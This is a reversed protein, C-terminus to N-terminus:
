NDRTSSKYHKLNTLLVKDIAIAENSNSLYFKGLYLEIEKPRESMGTKEARFIILVKKGKPIKCEYDQKVYKGDVNVNLFSFYTQDEILRLQDLKYTISDLSENHIELIINCRGPRPARAYLIFDVGDYSKEYKINSDNQLLFGESQIEYFFWSRCSLTILLVLSILIFNPYNNM